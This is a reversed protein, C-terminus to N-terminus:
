KRFRTVDVEPMLDKGFEIHEFLERAFYCGNLIGRAGLGNYVFYNLHEPHHGLIPRRDKVTPRFGYNVEVTKFDHLYFAVLSEKLEVEKFDDIENERENPDYTGGYYHFDDNLPFLFHKKKITYRNTPKQELQVKLHHGKNPIVPIDCFFPNDRVGMGECFVINKFKVDKYQDGSISEHYFRENILIYKESLYKLFDTFFDDVNVRASKQVAGTGFPNEVVDLQEFCPDLFPRLEETQSKKLWLEKESEDHFIRHIRENVLYNKGTYIAIEAMTQSLFDIQEEALWFTTFKKLVVPNVIGASIHSASKLGESYMIFSKGHQLLQHAFFVGAYGGGVIIYDVNKM